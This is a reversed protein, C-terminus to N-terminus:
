EHGTNRIILRINKRQAFKVTEAIDRPEHVDVAYSVYTGVVCQASPPLFPNCSNNAFFPAMVSSSTPYHLQPTLWRDRLSDCQSQNYPAFASHHCPAGLPRSAVLRGNVTNNLSDWVEQSPWCTDGPFCRCTSGANSPSVFSPLLALFVLILQM